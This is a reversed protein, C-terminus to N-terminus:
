DGYGKREGYSCFDDVSLSVTLGGKRHCLRGDCWKCDRCRVVGERIWLENPRDARGEVIFEGNIILGNSEVRTLTYTNSM